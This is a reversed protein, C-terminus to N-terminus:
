ALSFGGDGVTAVICLASNVISKATELDPRPTADVGDAHRGVQGTWNWECISCFVLVPNEKGHSLPTTWREPKARIAAIIKGLTPLQDDPIVVPALAAECAKIAEIQAKSPDPERTQIAEWADRLHEAAPTQSRVQSEMSAVTSPDVREVLRYAPM